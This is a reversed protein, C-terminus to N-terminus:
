CSAIGAGPLCLRPSNPASLDVQRSLDTLELRPSHSSLYSSLHDPFLHSMSRQAGCVHIHKHVGACVCLVGLELGLCMSNREGPHHEREWAEELSSALANAGM